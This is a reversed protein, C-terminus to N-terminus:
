RAKELFVESLLDAIRRGGVQGSSQSTCIMETTIELGDLQDCVDANRLFWSTLSQVNKAKLIDLVESRGVLKAIDEESHRLIRMVVSARVKAMARELKLESDRVREEVGIILEGLLVCRVEVMGRRGQLLRKGSVGDM